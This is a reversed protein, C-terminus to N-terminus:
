STLACSEYDHPRSNLDGGFWWEGVHKIESELNDLLFDSISAYRLLTQFRMLPQQQNSFILQILRCM